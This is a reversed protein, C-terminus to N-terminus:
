LCPSSGLKDARRLTTIAILSTLYFGYQLGYTELGLSPMPNKLEGLGELRVLAQPRGM